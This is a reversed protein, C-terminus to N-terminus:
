NTNCALGNNLSMFETVDSDDIHVFLDSELLRSGDAVKSAAVKNAAPEELVEQAAVRAAEGVDAVEDHVLHAVVEHAAGVAHTEHVIM